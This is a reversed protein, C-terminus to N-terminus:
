RTMYFKVQAIELLMLRDEYSILTGGKVDARTKDQVIKISNYTTSVVTILNYTSLNHGAAWVNTNHNTIHYGVM